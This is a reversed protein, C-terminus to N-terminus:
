TDVEHVKHNRLYLRSLIKYTVTVVFLNVTLDLHYM